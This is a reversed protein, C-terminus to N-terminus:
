RADAVEAAIGVRPRPDVLLTRPRFIPVVRGIWEVAALAPSGRFFALAPVRAQLDGSLSRLEYPLDGFGDGDLDYGAYDDFDNGRWEIGLADGRGDVRVQVANGRFTNARFRNRAPSSHFVVAYDCLRFENGEFTNYEEISLPSTDLYLGVTNALFRNGVVRLDGSEKSGLGVGAAGGSDAIVNDRIEIARSYMTFIGVVNGVYRNGYVRNEHSYMFHTGYRGREITNGAILNGPSYWVVIDRSDSVRNSEIRSDRTEWLRIGDGRMGLARGPAGSIRNGLIAVHRSKEVLIGFVANRVHVDEVRAGDAEVRVAADLLDFRGGSGDVTVGILATGGHELRVTTGEGGSRIVAERPGRVTQGPGLRLPGAYEGPELCFAAGAPAADLRPQLASGAPVRECTGAQDRDPERAPDTAAVSLLAALM